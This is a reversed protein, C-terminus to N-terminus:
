HKPVLRAVERNIEQREAEVDRLMRELREALQQKRALLAELSRTRGETALREERLRATAGTLYASEATEIRRVYGTLEDQEAQTLPPGTQERGRLGHFRVREEATLWGDAM